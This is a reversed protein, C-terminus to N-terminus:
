SAKALRKCQNEASILEATPRVRNMTDFQFLYCQPAKVEWLYAKVSEGGGAVDRVRCVIVYDSNGTHGRYESTEHVIAHSTQDILLGAAHKLYRRCELERHQDSDILAKLEDHLHGTM